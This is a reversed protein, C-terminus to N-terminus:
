TVVVKLQMGKARHGPIACYLEYTGAKPFTVTFSKSTGASLPAKNHIGVDDLGHGDILLDHSFKGTNHVAITYRTGHVLKLVPAARKVTWEKENIKFTPTAADAAVALAAAVLTVTAAIALGTRNRRM